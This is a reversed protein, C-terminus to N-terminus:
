ISSRDIFTIAVIGSTKKSAKSSTEQLPPPKLPVFLRKQPKKNCKVDEAFETIRRSTGQFRTNPTRGFFRQSTFGTLSEFKGLRTPHPNPNGPHEQILCDQDTSVSVLPSVLKSPSREESLWDGPHNKAGKGDPGFSVVSADGFPSTPVAEFMTPNLIM